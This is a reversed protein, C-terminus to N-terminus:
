RESDGSVPFPVPDFPVGWDAALGRIGLIHLLPVGRQSYIMGIGPTGETCALPERTLGTPMDYSEHCTGLGIVSGGVNVVLGPQVGPGLTRDIVGAIHAALEALSREAVLTVGNRQAAARIAVRGQDELEIGIGGTGGMVGIM